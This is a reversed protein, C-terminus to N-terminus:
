CTSKGKAVYAILIAIIRASSITAVAIKAHEDAVQDTEEDVIGDCAHDHQCDNQDDKEYPLLFGLILGAVGVIDILLHLVLNSGVGSGVVAGYHGVLDLGDVRSERGVLENAKGTFDEHLDLFGPGGLVPLRDAGEFALCEEVLMLLLEVFVDTQALGVHHLLDANLMARQV